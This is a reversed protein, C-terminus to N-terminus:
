EKRETPTPTQRRTWGPYDDSPLVAHWDDALIDAICFAAPKLMGDDGFEEAFFETNGLSYVLEDRWCDRRIVYPRPDHASDEALRVVTDLRM